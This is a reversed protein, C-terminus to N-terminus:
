NVTVNLSMLRSLKIDIFCCRPPPVYRNLTAECDSPLTNSDMDRCVDTMFVPLSVEVALRGAIPTFTM